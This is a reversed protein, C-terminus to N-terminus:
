QVGNDELFGHPAASDEVVQWYADNWSQWAVIHERVCRTQEADLEGSAYLLLVHYDVAPGGSRLNGRITQIVYDIEPAAQSDSMVREGISAESHDEPDRDPM